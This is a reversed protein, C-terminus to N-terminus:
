QAENNIFRNKEPLSKEVENMLPISQLEAPISQLVVVVTCHRSLSLAAKDFWDDVRNGIAFEFANSEQCQLLAVLNSFFSLKQEIFLEQFVNSGGRGRKEIFSQVYVNANVNMGKGYLQHSVIWYCSGKPYVTQLKHKKIGAKKIKQFCFFIHNPWAAFDTKVSFWIINYLIPLGNVLIEIFRITLQTHIYLM